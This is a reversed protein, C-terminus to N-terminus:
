NLQTEPAQPQCEFRLILGVEYISSLTRMSLHGTSELNFTFDGKVNCERKHIDVNVLIPVFTDNAASQADVNQIPLLVVVAVLFVASFYRFM